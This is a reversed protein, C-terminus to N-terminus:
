EIRAIRYRLTGRPSSVSVEEGTGKDILARGLPSAISIKGEHPSVEQPDVLLYTVEKGSVVEQLMVRCGHYVKSRATQHEGSLVEAGELTAEIQRLQGMLHGQQQRAAELPFNERFDKDAAAKKIDESNKILDEKLQVLKAQLSAHGEVTLQAPERPRRKSADSAKGVRRAKVHSALGVPLAAQEVIYTFFEKLVKVRKSATEMSTSITSSYAEIDRPTLQALQYQRGFHRLLSSLEQQTAADVKSLSQLYLTAAAELTSPTFQTSM